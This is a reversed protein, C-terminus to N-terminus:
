DAHWVKLLAKARQYDALNTIKDLWSDAEITAVGYGLLRVLSADDTAEINNRRAYEHAKLIVGRRFSQPTQVAWLSNRDIGSQTKKDILSDAIAKVLIVADNSELSRISEKIYKRALFPRAADHILLLEASSAQVLKYVSAQRSSGGVIVKVFDNEMTKALELMNQPVAIILEDVEDSFCSITHELITKEGLKLFAKPGLGLRQGLGSAPILAASKSM